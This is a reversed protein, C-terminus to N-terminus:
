GHGGEGSSSGGIQGASGGSIRGAIWDRVVARDDLDLVQSGVLQYDEHGKGAIVVVDGARADQLAQGIAQRRDLTVTCTRCRPAAAAAFGDQIQACIAQPDESRPNDTTIWVADSGLAAVRGMLPRKGQDRDGGCGFVVLLRGQKLEDCAVLVAALADHTHAYDVVALAGGPLAFRELRGPVQAVQGLALACQAPDFGLALGAALAAALNEVNFRGVLPSELRLTQGRWDLDLSTGQLTLEAGTVRLDAPRDALSQGTTFLVVPRGQTDLGALDPDGANIVVPGRLAGPLRPEKAGLLGLIRAKAALYAPRTLHYDLHDRGLNTMVAVDLCLGATRSQDLAHSSIEMAASRCGARVMKDLWHYLLPGDPTTLPAPESEAGSEYVITGLLGCPGHLQELLKQLLFSVTTKGNTGTVGALLLRLDPRGHLLRALLAPVPRTDPVRIVGLPPTLGAPLAAAAAGADEVVVARCGRAVADALHDHGDGRTGRVAVFLAGPCARRSDTTVTVINQQAAIRDANDQLAAGPLEAALAALTLAM